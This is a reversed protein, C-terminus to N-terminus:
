RPWRGGPLARAGLADQAYFYAWVPVRSKRSATTELSAEVITREFLNQPHGYGDFDEWADLERFVNVEPLEYVEGRVLEGPTGWTVGPYEGLDVLRGEISGEGRYTAGVDDLLHHKDQGRKLTGYVFVRKPDPGLRENRRAADLHVRSLGFAVLGRAITEVYADSPAIFDERYADTVQYTFARQLKGDNGIAMCAEKRYRIPAGEKEDLARLADDDFEFLVGPVAVGLAATVDAASGGWSRSRYHFALRHDPLFAQGLPRLGRADHGREACWTRLHHLDLNSGYAFYPVNLISM